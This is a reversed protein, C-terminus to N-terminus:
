RYNTFVPAKTYTSTPGSARRPNWSLVEPNKIFPITYHKGQQQSAASHARQLAAQENANQMQLQQTYLNMNTNWQSALGQARNQLVGQYMNSLSTDSSIRNQLLQDELALKQRTNDFNQGRIMSDQITTNGLGRMIAAQASKALNYKNAVDLDQRMSDGYKEIRGMNRERTDLADASIADYNDQLAAYGQDALTYLNNASSPPTMGKRKQSFSLPQQQLLSAMSM